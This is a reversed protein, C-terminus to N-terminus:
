VHFEPAGQRLAIHTGFRRAVAIAINKAVVSRSPAFSREHGARENAIVRHAGLACPGALRNREREPCVVLLYQDM